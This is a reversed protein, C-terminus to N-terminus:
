NAPSTEADSATSVETDADADTDAAPQSRSAYFGIRRLIQNALETRMERQLLRIEEEKGVVNRPDNEMQKVVTVQSEEMAVQNKADLVTFLSTMTLEYEAARAESSLSLNDLEFKESKVYLAYNADAHEAWLVGNAAFRSLIERSFESNPNPTVLAMSKWDEPLLKSYDGTGRLQFGCAGLCLTLLLLFSTTLRQM